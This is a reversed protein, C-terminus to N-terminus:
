MMMMMTTTMMMMSMTMMMMMMMSMTMMMMMMLMKMMTMIMMMMMSMMMMMMMIIIVIKNMAIHVFCPIVFSYLTHFTCVSRIIYELKFCCLSNFIILTCLHWMDCGEGVNYYATIDHM